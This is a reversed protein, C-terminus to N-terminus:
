SYRYRYISTQAPNGSVEEPEDALQFDLHVLGESNSVNKWQAIRNRSPTTVWIEPYQPPFTVM